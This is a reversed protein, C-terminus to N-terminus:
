RDPRWRASKSVPLTVPLDGSSSLSKGTDVVSTAASRVATDRIDQRGDGQEACGLLTLVGAMVFATAAVMHRM